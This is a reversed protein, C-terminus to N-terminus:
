RQRALVRAVGPAPREGTTGPAYLHKGRTSLFRRQAVKARAQSFREDFKNANFCVFEGMPTSDVEIVRVQRGAKVVWTGNEPRPHTADEIINM